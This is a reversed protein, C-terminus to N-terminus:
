ATAVQRPHFNQDVSSKTRGNFFTQMWLELTLFQWIQMSWDQAGNRHEKVFKQVDEPKFLGRNRIQSECLLDDVMPRLDHALWYDVPAAFAAKPQRLVEDPLIGKMAQRFIYKTTPRLFGKL